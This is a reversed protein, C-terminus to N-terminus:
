RNFVKEGRRSSCEILHIMDVIKTGEDLTCLGSGRNGEIIAQHMGKYTLNRDCIDFRRKEDGCYIAGEILDCTIQGSSGNVIIERRPRRDLYNVHVVVHPCRDMKLIATFIDDSEIELHSYKGGVATLESWDGFFWSIYDLEHSLDRLVGGGRESYGSYGLRYDRGKRWTPLYQGCYAVCSEIRDKFILSRLEMLAPHFRLNYAVYGKFPPPAPRYPKEFLPKEILVAGSFGQTCLENYASIHESTESAVVVYSVNKEGDLASGIAGYSKVEELNRRSVISVDLGMGTLIEHHRRGISGFGIVVVKM